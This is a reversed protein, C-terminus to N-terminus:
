MPTLNLVRYGKWSLFGEIENPLVRPTAFVQKENKDRFVSGSITLRIDRGKKRNNIQFHHPGTEIPSGLFNLTKLLINEPDTVGALSLVRFGNEELLSIVEPDLGTYDILCERDKLSFLFDAKVIINFDKEGAQFIPIDVNSSHPRGVLDLIREVFGGVDESAPLIDTEDGWKNTGGSAPPFEVIDLGRSSFYSILAAPTRPIGAGLLTIAKFRPRDEQGPPTVEVIWDANVLIPIEGTMKLPDGKDSLM